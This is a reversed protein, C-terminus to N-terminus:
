VLHGAPHCHYQYGCRIRECYGQPMVPWNQEVQRATIEQAARLINFKFEEGQHSTSAAKFIPSPDPDTLFIIGAKIEVGPKVLHRAALLYCDLQFQYPELKAPPRHTLKYDILTAQNGEAEILLDIQGRLYVAVSPAGSQGKSNPGLSLMFPLERHLKGPSIKSLQQGWPTEALTLLAQLIRNKELEPLDAAQTEILSLLRIKFAPTSSLAQPDVLELLRHALTGQRSASVSFHESGRHGTAVEAGGLSHALHYRRPCLFYDQLQTVSYVVKEPKPELPRRVRDLTSTMTALSTESPRTSPSVFSGQWSNIEDADLSRVRQRSSPTALHTDLTQRWSNGKRSPQGSLILLDRARTYAVYMLRSSEARDREAREAAFARLRPSRAGDVLEPGVPKLALGRLRDFMVKGGRSLSAAALDPVLVVPWELGKAQHITLLQVTCEDTEEFEAEAENPEAEALNFLYTAFESCGGQHREVWTESLQLLKDLNALVQEGFPAAAVKVRYDSVRLAEQLLKNVPCRGRLEQLSDYIKLFSHILPQQNAAHRLQEFALGGDEGVTALEFLDTDTLAAFPSRLVAALALTNQDDALLSLLSGVDLIEQANYFGRGRLVRHPIQHRLLAQRYVDVQTLRRFLIAVDRGRWKTAGSLLHELRVAILEAEAERSSEATDKKPHSLVEVCPGTCDTARAAFLDDEPKYGQPGPMADKFFHNFFSLLHQCSRWNNQLHRRDGGQEVILSSMGNFISVDAGRFDYISQKPDGVVCLMQSQLPWTEAWQLKEAVARPAGERQEALLAVIELQLRNTDQFEDVLLVGVQSQIEARVTPNDKLLNRTRILLETFDLQNLIKLQRSLAANLKVLLGRFAHEQPEAICGLYFDKLNPVQSPKQTDVSSAFAKLANGSDGRQHPLNVEGQILKRLLVFKEPNLFNEFTLSELPTKCASLFDAFRGKWSQDAEVAEALLHRSHCVADDFAAHSEAQNSLPLREPAIGEERIQNLVRVLSDVLSDASDFGWARVLLTVIEDRAELSRIVEAQALKRHLDRAEHESLIQFSPSIGVELSKERLLRMCMSHFTGITVEGLQSVLGGWFSPPPLPLSLSAFSARLEPEPGFSNKALGELRARLRAELESAAKDTFTLVWLQKPSVAVGGVRAGGLIHLCLTMLAHTKGSGAGAAFALNKQLGWPILDSM